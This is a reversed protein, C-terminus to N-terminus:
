NILCYAVWFNYVGVIVLKGLVDEAKPLGMQGVTKGLFVEPAAESYQKMLTMAKSYDPNRNLITDINDIAKNAIDRLQPTDLNNKTEILDKRLNFLPQGTVDEASLLPRYQRLTAQLQNVDQSGSFQPNNNVFQIIDQSAQSDPMRLEDGLQIPEQLAQGMMESAQQRPAVLKSALDESAERTQKFIDERNAYGRYGKGEAGRNYAAMIKQITPSDKAFKQIIGPEPENAQLAKAYDPSKQSIQDDINDVLSSVRSELTPDDSLDLKDLGTRLRYLEKADRIPVKKYSELDALIPKLDEDGLKDASLKLRAQVDAALAKSEEGGILNEPAEGFRPTYKPAAAEEVAAEM